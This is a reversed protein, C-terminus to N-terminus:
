PRQTLLCGLSSQKSYRTHSFITLALRHHVLTVSSVTDAGASNFLGACDAVLCTSPYSVFEGEFAVAGVNKVIDVEDGVPAGNYRAQLRSLLKGVVSERVGEDGKQM